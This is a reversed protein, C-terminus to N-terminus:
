GNTKKKEAQRMACDKGCGDCGCSCGGRRGNRRMFVLALAIGGAVLLLILIDWLNM